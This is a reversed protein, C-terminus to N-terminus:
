STTEDSQAVPRPNCAPPSSKEGQRSPYPSLKSTYTPPTTSEAATATKAALCTDLGPQEADGMVHHSTPTTAIPNSVPQERVVGLREGCLAACDDSRQFLDLLALLGGTEVCCQITYRVVVASRKNQVFDLSQGTDVGRPRGGTSIGYAFTTGRSGSFFGTTSEGVM